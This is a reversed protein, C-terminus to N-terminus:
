FLQIPSMVFTWPEYSSWNSQLGEWCWYIINIGLQYWFTLLVSIQPVTMRCQTLTENSIPIVPPAICVTNKESSPENPWLLDAFDFYKKWSMNNFAYLLDLNHTHCFLIQLFGSYKSYSVVYSQKFLYFFQVFKVSGGISFRQSDSFTWLRLMIPIEQQM